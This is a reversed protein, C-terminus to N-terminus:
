HFLLIVDNNRELIKLGEMAERVAIDDDPEPISSGAASPTFHDIPDLGALIHPHVEEGVEMQRPPSVRQEVFNTLKLLGTGNKFKVSIFIPLNVEAGFIVSWFVLDGIECFSSM